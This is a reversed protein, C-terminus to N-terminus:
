KVHKMFETVWDAATDTLEQQKLSVTPDIHKKYFPLADMRLTTLESCSLHERYNEPLYGLIELIEGCGLAHEYMPHFELHRRELPPRIWLKEELAYTLFTIRSESESLNPYTNQLETLEKLISLATNLNNEGGVRWLTLAMRYRSEAYEAAAVTDSNAQLNRMHLASAAKYHDFAIICDKVKESQAYLDGLALRCLAFERQLAPDTDASLSKLLEAETEYLEIARDRRGAGKTETHLGALKGCVLAYALLADRDAATDALEKRMALAKEFLAQAQKHMISGQLLEAMEEQAAAFLAATDEDPAESYLKRSLDLAKRAYQQAQRASKLDHSSRHFAAMSRYAATLEMRLSRDDIDQAMSEMLEVARTRATIVSLRGVATSADQFEAYRCCATYATEGSLRSRLHEYVDVALNKHLLYVRQLLRRTEATQEFRPFFHDSLFRVLSLSEENPIATECLQKVFEADYKCTYEYLMEGAETLGLMDTQYITHLYGRFADANGDRILRHATALPRRANSLSTM